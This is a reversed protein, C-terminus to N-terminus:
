SIVPEALLLETHPSEGVAGALCTNVALNQSISDEVNQGLRNEAEPQEQAVAAHRLCVNFNGSPPGVAERGLAADTNTIILVLRMWHLRESM